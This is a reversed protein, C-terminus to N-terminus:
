NQEQDKLLGAGWFNFQLYDFDDANSVQTFNNFDLEFSITTNTYNSIKWDFSCDELL